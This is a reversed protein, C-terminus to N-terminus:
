LQVPIFLTFIFYQTTERIRMRDRVSPMPQERDGLSSKVRFMPQEGGGGTSVEGGGVEGGVV